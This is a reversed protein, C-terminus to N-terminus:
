TVRRRRLQRGAFRTGQEAQDRAAAGPGSRWHWPVANRVKTTEWRWSQGDWFHGWPERQLHEREERKDAGSHSAGEAEEMGDSFRKGHEVELVECEKKVHTGESGM